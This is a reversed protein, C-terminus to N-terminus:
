FLSGASTIVKETSHSQHKQTHFLMIGHSDAKFLHKKKEGGHFHKQCVDQAQTLTCVLSHKLVFVLGCYFGDAGYELVVIRLNM